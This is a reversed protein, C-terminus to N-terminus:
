WLPPTKNSHVEFGVEVYIKLVKLLFSFFSSYILKGPHESLMLNLLLKQRIKQAHYVERLFTAHEKVGKINFTMPESGVAIVLKDYAVKFKYPDYPLGERSATTCYV